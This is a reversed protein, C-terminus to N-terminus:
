HMCGKASGQGMSKGPMMYGKIMNKKIIKQVMPATFERKFIKRQEPTLIAYISKFLDTKADIKADFAKQKMNKFLAADFADDGFADIPMVKNARLEMQRMKFTNVADTVAAAQKTNIGTKSVAEIVRRVLHPRNDKGSMGQHSVANKMTKGDTQAMMGKGDAYVTGAGLLAALAVTALLTRKM